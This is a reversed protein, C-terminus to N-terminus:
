WMQWAARGRCARFITHQFRWAVATSDGRWQQSATAPLQVRVSHLVPAAKQPRASQSVQHQVTETLGNDVPVMNERPVRIYVYPDDNQTSEEPAAPETKTVVAKSPTQYGSARPTASAPAMGTTESRTHHAPGNTSQRQQIPTQGYSQGQVGKGAKGQQSRSSNVSSEDQKGCVFCEINDYRRKREAKVGAAKANRAHPTSTLLVERCSPGRLLWRGLTAGNQQRGVNLM